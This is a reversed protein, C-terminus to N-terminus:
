SLAELLNKRIVVLGGEIIIPINRTDQLTNNLSKYWDGDPIDFKISSIPKFEPPGSQHEDELDEYFEKTNEKKFFGLLKIAAVQNDKTSLFNFWTEAEQSIPINLTKAAAIWSLM